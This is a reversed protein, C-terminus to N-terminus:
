VALRELTMAVASFGDIHYEAHLMIANLICSRVIFERFQLMPLTHDFTTNISTVEYVHIRVGM